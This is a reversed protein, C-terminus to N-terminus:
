QRKQQAERAVGSGQQTGKISPFPIISGIGRLARATTIPVHFHAALWTDSPGFSSRYLIKRITRLDLGVDLFVTLWLLVTEVPLSTQESIAEPSAEESRAAVEAFQRLAEAIAEELKAKDRLYNDLLWPEINQSFVRNECRVAWLLAQVLEEERRDEPILGISAVKALAPIDLDDLLAAEFINAEEFCGNDAAIKAL